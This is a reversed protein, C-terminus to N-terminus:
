QRGKSFEESYWVPRASNTGIEVWIERGRRRHICACNTPLIYVDETVGVLVTRGGLDPFIFEDDDASTTRTRRGELSSFLYSIRSCPTPFDAKVM